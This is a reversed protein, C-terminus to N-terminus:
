LCPSFNGPMGIGEIHGSLLRELGDTLTFLAFKLSSSGCNITLISSLDAQESETRSSGAPIKSSQSYM